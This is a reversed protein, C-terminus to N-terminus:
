NGLWKNLKSAVEETLNDWGNQLTSELEKLKKELKDRNERTAERVDAKAEELKAELEKRKAQVRNKLEEKQSVDTVDTM